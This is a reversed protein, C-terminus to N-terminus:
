AIMISEGTAHVINSFGAGADMDSDDYRRIRHHRFELLMRGSLHIQAGLRRNWVVSLLDHSMSMSWRCTLVQTNPIHQEMRSEDRHKTSHGQTCHTRVRDNLFTLPWRSTSLRAHTLTEHCTLANFNM